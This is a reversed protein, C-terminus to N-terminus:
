VEAGALYETRKAHRAGSVTGRRFPALLDRRGFVIAGKPMAHDLAFHMVFVGAHHVAHRGVRAQERRCRVHRPEGFPNKSAALGHHASFGDSEKSRRLRYSVTIRSSEAPVPDRLRRLGSMM